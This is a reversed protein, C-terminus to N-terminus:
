WICYICKKMEYKSKWEINSNDTMVKIVYDSTTLFQIIKISCASQKLIQLILPVFNFVYKKNM